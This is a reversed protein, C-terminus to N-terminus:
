KFMVRIHDIRQNIVKRCLAKKKQLLEVSLWEEKWEAEWQHDHGARQRFRGEGVWRDWTQSDDAFRVLYRWTDVLKQRVAKLKLPGFEVALTGGYLDMLVAQASQYHDLERSASGDALRYYGEAYKWFRLCLESVTLGAAVAGNTGLPYRGGHAELEALIRRYEARSEPSGFPGLLLDHRRGDSLRV